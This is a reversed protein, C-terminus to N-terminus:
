VMCGGDSKKKKMGIEHAAIFQAITSPMCTFANWGVWVLFPRHFIESGCEVFMRRNQEEFLIRLHFLRSEM